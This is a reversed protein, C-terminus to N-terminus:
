TREGRLRLALQLDKPYLTVRKAHITCLNADSLLSVLYSETADQMAELASHRMHMTDKFTSMIEKVLRRFPSRAILMETSHQYKRVERLAVTGPRWHRRRKSDATGGRMAKAEKKAMSRSKKNMKRSAVNKKPHSAVVAAKTVGAM